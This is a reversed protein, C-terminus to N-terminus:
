QWKRPLCGSSKDSGSGELRKQGKHCRKVVPLSPMMSKLLQTRNEGGVMGSGVRYVAQASIMGRESWWTQRKPGKEKALGEWARQSRVGERRWIMGKERHADKVEEQKDRPIRGGM